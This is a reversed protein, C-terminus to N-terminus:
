LFDPEEPKEPKKGIVDDFRKSIEYFAGGLTQRYEEEKISYEKEKEEFIKKKRKNKVRRLIELYLVLVFVGVTGIKIVM